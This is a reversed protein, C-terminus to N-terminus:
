ILRGIRETIRAMGVAARQFQSTASYVHTVISLGQTKGTSRNFSLCYYDHRGNLREADLLRCTALDIILVACKCLM